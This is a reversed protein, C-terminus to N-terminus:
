AGEELPAAPDPTPAARAACAPVLCAGRPRVGRAPALCASCVGVGCFLGRPHPPPGGPARVQAPPREAPPRWVEGGTQSGADVLVVDLGHEAAIDAASLGAPGGGIVALDPIREATM